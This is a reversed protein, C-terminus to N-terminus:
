KEKIYVKGSSKARMNDEEEWLKAKWASLQNHMKVLKTLQKHEWSKDHNPDCNPKSLSKYLKEYEPYKAKFNIALQLLEPDVTKPVPTTTTKTTKTKKVDDESSTIPSVNDAKRKKLGDSSASSSPSPSNNEAKSTSAIPSAVPKPSQIKKKKFFKFDPLAHLIKLKLPHNEPYGIQDLKCSLYQRITHRQMAGLLHCNVQLLYFDRLVYNVDHVKSIMRRLAAKPVKSKSILAGVEEKTLSNGKLLFQQILHQVDSHLSSSFSSSSPSPSPPASSSTLLFPHSRQHSLASTKLLSKHPQQPCRAINSKAMNIKYDLTGMNIFREDESSSYLETKLNDRLVTAELLKGKIRFSLKGNKVILKPVDQELTTEQIASVLDENLRLLFNVNKYRDVGTSPIHPLLISPTVNLSM